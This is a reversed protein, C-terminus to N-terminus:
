GDRGELVDVAFRFTKAIEEKSSFTRMEKIALRLIQYRRGVSDTHRCFEKAKSERVKGLDVIEDAVEGAGEQDVPFIRIAAYSHSGPKRMRKYVHCLFRAARAFWPTRAKEKQPRESRNRGTDASKDRVRGPGKLACHTNFAKTPPPNHTDDRQVKLSPAFLTPGSSKGPRLRDCRSLLPRFSLALLDGRGSLAFSFGVPNLRRTQPRRGRHSRPVSARRGQFMQVFHSTQAGQPRTEGSGHITLHGWSPLDMMRFSIVVIANSARISV